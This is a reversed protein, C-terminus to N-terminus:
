LSCSMDLMAHKAIHQDILRYFLTASDSHCHCPWSACTCAYKDPDKYTPMKCHTRTYLRNYELRAKRRHQIASLPVQTALAPAFICPLVSDMQSVSLPLCSSSTVSLPKLGLVLSGFCAPNFCCCLMCLLCLICLLCLTCLLVAQLAHVGLEAPVAHVAHVALVAHRALVAHVAHAAFYGACCIVTILAPKGGKSQYLPVRQSCQKWCAEM